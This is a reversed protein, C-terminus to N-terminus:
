IKIDLWHNCGQSLWMECMCNLSFCTVQIIFFQMFVFSMQGSFFLCMPIQRPFTSFFVFIASLYFYTLTCSSIHCVSAFFTTFSSYNGGALQFASSLVDLSCVFGYLLLLLLPVRLLGIFPSSRGGPRDESKKTPM